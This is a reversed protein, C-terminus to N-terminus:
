NQMCNNYEAWADAADTLKKTCYLAAAFCGWGGTTACVIGSTLCAWFADDSAKEADEKEDECHSSSYVMSPVIAGCVAVFLIVAIVKTFISFQRSM